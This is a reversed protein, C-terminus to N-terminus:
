TIKIEDLEVRKQVSTDIKSKESQLRSKEQDILQRVEDKLSMVLNYRLSM